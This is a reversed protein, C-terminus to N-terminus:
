KIPLTVTFTSGEGQRSSVTLAGQHGKVVIDYSLSLGLGTGTGTPKTTFFPEFIKERNKEPIGVGNDEIEVVISRANKRTRVTVTPMFTEDNLKKAKEDVAHMANTILNLFVRSIEQPVVEIKGIAEDFERKMSCQFTSDKARIGHFALNLYEELVGNIDTPQREGSEGSSHLLMSRVISDARKGHENIKSANMKLDNLIDSVYEIIEKVPKDHNNRLEEELETFLEVSLASFNNVFNLPNKIEHAIGATLQGLSAMKEAHVLQQQAAQLERHSQDLAQYAKELERAKELELEKRENEAQLARATAEAVEAQAAVAKAQQEAAAAQLEAAEARLEAERIQAQHREKRILRARQVKNATFLVIIVFIFYGAYAWYTLYWPPTIIIRISAGEENWVGDSNSGTVILTYTGPELNTYTVFRRKATTYNWDPDFGELKYKYINKDPNNFSLVAFEFSFVKQSYPLVIEETEMVSARLLKTEDNPRVPKNFALFETFQVPPVYKREHISDPHFTTFGNPSGFYLYGRSDRHSGGQNFDNGPLGDSVDFNRVKIDSGGGEAQDFTIKSIGAATSVWLSGGHDPLISFVHDSPLGHSQGFATFKGTKRNLRNLGGGATGVYIYDGISNISWVLNNSLSSSDNPVHKYRRVKGTVVDLANLGADYTGIWLTGADDEHLSIIMDSSISSSDDYDYRYHTFAQTAFDFRNLGGGSTGIWINGERDKLLARVFDNSLNSPLTPDHRYETIKGSAKEYAVLGFGYTGIWLSGRGDDCLAYIDNVHQQRSRLQELHQTFKRTKKDMANLGGGITGIWVSTADVAFSTVRNSSLSRPNDPDNQLSPFLKMKNFFRNLGLSTGVWLVGERDNYLCTVDNSSLSQPNSPENQYRTFKRTLPNFVNLAGGSSGIWLLGSQDQAITNISNDSFLSQVNVAELAFRECTKTKLDFANLIGSGTGLWLTNDGDYCLSMLYDEAISTPDAPNYLYRTFRASKKDFSNLGGRTGIWLMGQGDETISSVSSNSISSPDLPDNQYRRFIGKDPDFSNLGDYTGIWLLGNRDEYISRVRNDSLSTEDDPRNQYRTFRMLKRDYLNLGGGMTGVWLRGKSDELIAGIPGESIATSDTPSHRFVVFAYGDFRNLGDATGIWLFGRHDQHIATVSNHSLNDYETLKKFNIARPQALSSGVIICLLPILKLM